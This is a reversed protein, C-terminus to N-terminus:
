PYLNTDIDLIVMYEGKAITLGQNRAPAVGRNSENKIIQALPLIKEIMEITNDSSGNDIVIVEYDSQKVNSKISGLCKEIFMASNWTLIVFSLKLNTEKIM